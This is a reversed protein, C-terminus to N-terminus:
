NSIGSDTANLFIKKISIKEPTKARFKKLSFDTRPGSSTTRLIGFDRSQMIDRFKLDRPLLSVCM